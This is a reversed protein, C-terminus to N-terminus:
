RIRSCRILRWTLEEVSDSAGAVFTAELAVLLFESPRDRQWWISARAPVLSLSGSPVLTRRGGQEPTHWEMWDTPGLHLGVALKGGLRNPAPLDRYLTVTAVGPLNVAPLKPVATLQPAAASLACRWNRKCVNDAGARAAM